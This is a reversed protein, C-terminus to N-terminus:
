DKNIMRASLAIALFDEVTLTEGRKQPDIKAHLLIEEARAASGAWKQLAVRITKRRQGFAADVVAFTEKRLQTEALKDIELGQQTVLSESRVTLRVLASDVNPVPWFVARGITSAREVQAYWNAKVSPVGYVKSGPKAALRNAVEMQVMVLVQKLHTFVEIFTIIVPVAVNYPLNAVLLEPIFETEGLSSPVALDSVGTIQLADQQKVAFKSLNQPQRSAITDPLATTLFPDIEVASVYAGAELLALTLSGIGPGVEVVKHGPCVGAEKVIKRVTGPDHVFNQGIKKTPSVGLKDVIERVQVPGLLGSDLASLATDKM